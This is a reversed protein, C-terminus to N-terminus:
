PHQLKRGEELFDPIADVPNTTRTAFRIKRDKDVVFVGYFFTGDSDLLNYSLATKDEADFLLPFAFDLNWAALSERTGEPTDGCLAVVQLGAKTFEANQESLTKLYSLCTPCSYGHHFVLLVPSTKLLGSLSVLPDGLQRQADQLSFDPALDGIEVPATAATLAPKPRERIALAVGLALVIPVFPLIRLATRRPPAPPAAPTSSSAFAPNLPSEAM